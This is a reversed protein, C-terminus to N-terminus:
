AMSQVGSSRDGSGNCLSLRALGIKVLGDRTM